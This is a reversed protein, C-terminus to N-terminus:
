TVNVPGSHGDSAAQQKVDGPRGNAADSRAKGDTSGKGFDKKVSSRGSNESIGDTNRAKAKAPRSSIVPEPNDLSSLAAPSSTTKQLPPVPMFVQRIQAPMSGNIPQIVSSPVGSSPLFVGTGTAHVRVPGPVATWVPNTITMSPYTGSQVTSSSIIPPPFQAAAHPPPPRNVTPVSVSTYNRSILTAPSPIQGSAKFNGIQSTSSAPNPFPVTVSSLISSPAGPAQMVVRSGKKSKLKGFLLLVCKAPSSSIALRAIDSSNGQLVLVSGVSLIIKFSSVFEGPADMKLTRGLIAICDCALTLIYPPKELDYHMSHPSLYEGEDLVILNCCDPKKSVLVINQHILNDIIEQLFTPMPEIADDTNSQYREDDEAYELSGFQINKRWKAKTWKKSAVFRYGGLRGKRAVCELEYLSSLLQSSKTKDLFNEYLELGEVVNIMKGDIQEFCSFNKTIKLTEIQSEEESKSFNHDGNISRSLSRTSNLKCM